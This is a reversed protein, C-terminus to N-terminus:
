HNELSEVVNTDTYYYHGLREDESFTLTIFWVSVCYDSSTTTLCAIFSSMEKLRVKKKELVTEKKKKEKKM